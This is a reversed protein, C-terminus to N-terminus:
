AVIGDRLLVKLATTIIIKVDYWFTANRVYTVDYDVKEELTVFDRGNIQALGTIGPLVADAGYEHRLDLLEEEELMIPRPGVISIEGKIVNFFQPLEDLSTRRLFKGVTTIYSNANQLDNTAVNPADIKMTRFKYIYFPENYLGARKQKFLIPGKSNLKIAVAIGLFLFWFLCIVLFSIVLDFFRKLFKYIHRASYNEKVDDERLM